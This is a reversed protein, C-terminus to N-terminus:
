TLCTRHRIPLLRGQAEDCHSKPVRRLQRLEAPGMKTRSLTCFALCTTPRGFCACSSRSFNHDTLYRNQTRSNFRSTHSCQSSACEPMAPRPLPRSDVRGAQIVWPLTNQSCAPASQAKCDLAAVLDAHKWADTHGARARRSGHSGRTLRYHDSLLM